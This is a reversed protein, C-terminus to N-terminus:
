MVLATIRRVAPKSLTLHRVTVANPLTTWAMLDTPAFSFATTGLLVQATDGPLLLGAVGFGGITLLARRDIILSM